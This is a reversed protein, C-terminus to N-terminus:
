SRHGFIATGLRIHTAGCQIADIYDQSMGMSLVTWLEPNIVKNHLVNFLEKTKQFVPLADHESSQLPAMTMIGCLSVASCGGAIEVMRHMESVFFGHKSDEQSINVQLLISTNTGQADSRKQIEMLLDESSVSHILKTHGVIQRVKNTQLTGILHWDPHLGQQALESEKFLLEQVRNEGLNALGLEYAARAVEPPFFKTVGILTLSDPRRGCTDLAEQIDSQVRELRAHIENKLIDYEISQM